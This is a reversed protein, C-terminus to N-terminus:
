VKANKKGMRQMQRDIKTALMLDFEFENYQRFQEVMLWVDVAEEVVDDDFQEPTADERFETTQSRAIATVLEGCEETLKNLIVEMGNADAIQKIRNDTM